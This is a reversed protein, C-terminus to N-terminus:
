DDTLVLSDLASAMTSCLATFLNQTGVQSAPLAYKLETVLQELRTMEETRLSRGWFREGYAELIEKVVVNSQSAPALNFDVSPHLKRKSSDPTNEDFTVAERCYAAALHSASRVLHGNYGSVDATHALGLRSEQSVRRINFNSPAIGTAYSLHMEYQRFNRLQLGMAGSTAMLFFMINLRVFIV